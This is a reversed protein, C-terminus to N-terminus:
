MMNVCREGDTTDESDVSRCSEYSAMLQTKVTWVRAARM